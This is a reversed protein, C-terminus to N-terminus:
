IDSGLASAQMASKESAIAPMLAKVVPAMFAKPAHIQMGINSTM